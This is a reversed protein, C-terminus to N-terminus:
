NTFCADLLTYYSPTEHFVDLKKTEAGFNGTIVGPNFVVAVSKTVEMGLTKEGHELHRGYEYRCKVNINIPVTMAWKFPFSSNGDVIGCWVNVKKPRQTHYEMMWRPNETVWFRCNQRHVYGNLIFTAEYSFIVNKVFHNDNTCLEQMQDCFQNRRDFDGESLEHVLCVKCKKMIKHVTSAAMNFDSALQNLTSHHNEQIALLFNLQGEESKSPRGSKPLDRVQGFNRYKSEINSVMSQSIPHRDPHTENFFEVVEKQTRMRDGFGIMCLIEIRERETSKVM